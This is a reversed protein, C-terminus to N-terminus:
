YMSSHFFKNEQQLIMRMMSGRHNKTEGWVKLGLKQEHKRKGRRYRVLSNKRYKENIILYVCMGNWSRFYM